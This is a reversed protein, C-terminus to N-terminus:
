ESVLVGSNESLQKALMATDEEISGDKQAEFSLTLGQPLTSKLADIKAVCKGVAVSSISNVSLDVALLSCFRSKGRSTVAIDIHVYTYIYIYIFFLIYIYIYIYICM